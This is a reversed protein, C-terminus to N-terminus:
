VGEMHGQREKGGKGEREWAGMKSERGKDYVCSNTQRGSQREGTMAASLGAVMGAPMFKGSSAYRQYMGYTLGAAVLLSVATAPKCAKGTHAPSVAAPPAKHPNCSSRFRACVPPGQVSAQSVMQQRCHHSFDAPGVNVAAAGLTQSPRARRCPVAAPVRLQLHQHGWCLGAWSRPVACQRQQGLRRHWRDLLLVARLLTTNASPRLRNHAPDQPDHMGLALLAAYIPSFCFDYMATQFELQLLAPPSTPSASACIHNSHQTTSCTQQENQERAHRNHVTQILNTLVFLLAFVFPALRFCSYAPHASWLCELKWM